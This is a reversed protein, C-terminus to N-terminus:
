KPNASCPRNMCTLQTSEAARGPGGGRSTSIGKLGTGIPSIGEVDLMIVVINVSGTLAETTDVKERPGRAGRPGRVTCRIAARARSGEGAEDKRNKREM